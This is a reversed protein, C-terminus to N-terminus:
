PKKEGILPLMLLAGGISRTLRFKPEWIFPGAKGTDQWVSIYKCNTNIDLHKCAERKVADMDCAMLTWGISQCGVCTAEFM